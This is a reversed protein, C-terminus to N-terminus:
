GISPKKGEERVVNRTEAEFLAAVDDAKDKYADLADQELLSIAEDLDKVKGKKAATAADRFKTERDRLDTIAANV